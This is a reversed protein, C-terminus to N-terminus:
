TPMSVVITFAVGFLFFAAHLGYINPGAALTNDLLDHWKQLTLYIKTQKLHGHESNSNAATTEEENVPLTNIDKQCSDFVIVIIAILLLIPLRSLSKKMVFIKITIM